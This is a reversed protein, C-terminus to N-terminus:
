YGISYDDYDPIIYNEEEFEQQLQKLHREQEKCLSLLISSAQRMVAISRRHQAQAAAQRYSKYNAGRASSQHRLFSQAAKNGLEASKKYASMAKYNNGRLSYLRGLQYYAYSNDKEAAKSLYKEAYSLHNHNFYYCGLIYASQFHGYKDAATRLLDVGKGELKKESLYRKGLTHLANVNGKDAQRELMGYAIATRRKDTPFHQLYMQATNYEATRHGNQVAKLFYVEAVEPSSQCGKGKLFMDAIRYQLNASPNENNLKIFKKFAISYLEYAKDPNKEIGYGREYCKAAEYAAFPQGLDAASIYLRSADEESKVTGIGQKYCNALSFLVYRYEDSLMYDLFDSRLKGNERMTLLASFANKDYEDAKADDDTKIGLLHHRYIYSLKRYAFADGSEAKKLITPLAAEANEKWNLTMRKEEDSDSIVSEYELLEDTTLEDDPIDSYLNSQIVEIDTVGLGDDPIEALAKLLANGARGYFDNLTNVTYNVYQNLKDAGYVEKYHESLSDLSQRYTTFLQKLNTDSNIINNVVADIQPRFRKMKPRNYQWGGDSPLIRRLELMQATTNTFAKKLAPLLLEREIRTHEILKEDKTETLDNLMISKLRNMASLSLLDKDRYKKCRDELRHYEVLASHIHINDTNTHIAATWYCNAPDLKPENEILASMAKRFTNRLKAKDVVGNVMIHNEILFENDFSVVQIYKPCGEKVSQIELQRYQEVEEATLCDKDVTFLGDSKEPNAMYDSFDYGSEAKAKAIFADPREMYSLYDNGPDVNWDYRFSNSFIVKPM